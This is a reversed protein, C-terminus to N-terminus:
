DPITLHPHISRATAVAFHAAVSAEAAAESTRLIEAFHLM